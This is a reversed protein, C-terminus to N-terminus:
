HAPANLVLTIANLVIPNPFIQFDLCVNAYRFAVFM